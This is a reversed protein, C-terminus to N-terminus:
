VINESFAPKEEAIEQIPSYAKGNFLEIARYIAPATPTTGNAEINEIKKRVLDIDETFDTILKTKEGVVGPFAIVAIESKGRRGEFSNMLDLISEKAMNMKTKMSGSCDILVCCKLSIEEKLGEIYGIFKSREKPQIDDLETGIIEKLQKNVVSNITKNVTKQTIMQMTQSLEQIHTLEWEGQGQRAINRIEDIPDDDDKDGVIGVASVVISNKIAMKAATVPNGGINSRGDTVIIIEKIEMKDMAIGWLM